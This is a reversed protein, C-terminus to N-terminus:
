PQGSGSRCWILTEHARQVARIYQAGIEETKFCRSNFWRQRKTWAPLKLKMAGCVSNQRRRRESVM